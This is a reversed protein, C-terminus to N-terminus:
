KRLEDIIDEVDKEKFGLAKSKKIGKTVLMRLENKTYYRRFCERMLESITRHEVKALRLMQKKLGPDVSIAIIETKRM